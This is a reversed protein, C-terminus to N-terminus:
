DKVIKSVVVVVVVVVFVVDFVVVKFVFCCLIVSANENWRQPLNIFVVANKKMFLTLLCGRFFFLAFM